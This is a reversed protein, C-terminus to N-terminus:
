EKTKKSTHVKFYRQLKGNADRKRGTRRALGTEPDVVMLNSIHISAEQEIIEGKPNASTPKVHRKVMNREEVVARLETTDVKLIIGQKGKDKGAIILVNDGRKVHLKKPKNKAKTNM